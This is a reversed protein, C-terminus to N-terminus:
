FPYPRWRICKYISAFSRIDNYYNPKMDETWKVSIIDNGALLTFHGLCDSSYM